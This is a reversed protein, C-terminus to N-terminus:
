HWSPKNSTKKNVFADLVQSRLSFDDPLEQTAEFKALATAVDSSQSGGRKSKSPTADQVERKEKNAALKAQVYEDKLAQRVTMGSKKVVDEIVKIDEAETVGKLDLYDLANEDLEDTKAEKKVPETVVPKELKKETAKTLKTQLRKAIGRAKEAEAKWDTEDTEEVDDLEEVETTDEVQENEDM